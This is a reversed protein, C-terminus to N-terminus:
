CLYSANLQLCHSRIKNHSAPIAQVKGTRSCLLEYGCECPGDAISERLTRFYSEGLWLDDTISHFTLGDGAPLDGGKDGARAVRCFALRFRARPM